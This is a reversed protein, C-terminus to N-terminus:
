KIGICVIIKGFSLYFCYQAKPSIFARELIISMTPILTKGYGLYSRRLELFSPLTVFQIM